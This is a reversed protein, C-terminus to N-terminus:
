SGKVNKEMAEMPLSIIGWEREMRPGPNYSARRNRNFITVPMPYPLSCPREHCTRGRVRETTFSLNARAAKEGQRHLARGIKCVTVGPEPEGKPLQPLLETMPQLHVPHCPATPVKAQPLLSSKNIYLSIRTSLNQKM